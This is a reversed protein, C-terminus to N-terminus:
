DGIENYKFNLYNCLLMCRNEFFMLPTKLCIEGNKLIM